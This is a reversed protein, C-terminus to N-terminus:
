LLEWNLTLNLYFWPLGPVFKLRKKGEKLAKWRTSKAFLWELRKKETKVVQHILSKDDREQNFFWLARLVTLKALGSKEPQLIWLRKRNPLCRILGFPRLHSLVTRRVASSIRKELPTWSKHDSPTNAMLRLFKRWGLRLGLGRLKALMHNFLGDLSNVRGKHLYRPLKGKM